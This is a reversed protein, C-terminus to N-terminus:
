RLPHESDLSGEAAGVACVGWGRPRRPVLLDWKAWGPWGASPSPKYYNGGELQSLVPSNLLQSLFM